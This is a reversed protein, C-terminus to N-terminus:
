LSQCTIYKNFFVDIYEAETKPSSVNCVCECICECPSSHIAYITYILKCFSRTIYLLTTALLHVLIHEHSYPKAFARRTPSDGM